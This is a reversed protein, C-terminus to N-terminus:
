DLLRKEGELKKIDTVDETVEMCGLYDGESNRVPFYRIYILRGKLNIWFEAKDRKGSKFEEVIKNVMHISKQPHCNQVKRGLIAKTRTFIREPPNSFYRVTDDKDVFTIDMPLSNFINEIEERSLSGTEFSVKGEKNKSMTKVGGKFTKRVDKPTFCCYGLEDFQTRIEKWEHPEIVRMGTPFLIHNEKYFHSSLIERIAHAKQQLKPSFDQIKMRDRSDLLEYFDKELGRIQDHESWMIAPPQTIGHKELYPFLVNEERNYHSESSQFHEKINQLQNLEKKISQFDEAQSIKSSVEQLENGYQLLLKHEEMLIRLPHGEPALPQEKEISEKFAALHVDCLKHIKERSMGEKILEEEVKSIEEPSIDPLMEKFDKKVQEPSEGKHLREIIKKLAKKKDGSYEGM